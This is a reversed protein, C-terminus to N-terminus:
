LCILGGELLSGCFRLDKLLVYLFLMLGKSVWPGGGRGLGPFCMVAPRGGLAGHRPVRSVGVGAATRSSEGM